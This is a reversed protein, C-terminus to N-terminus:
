IKKFSDPELCSDIDLMYLGFESLVPCAMSKDIRLRLRKASMNDVRLIRKYGITTGKILEQWNGDVMTDIAFKEVRQGLKIYEQLVIRNFVKKKGLDIEVAGQTVGDDTTWYNKTNGDLLNSPSFDKGRRTQKSSAKAGKTINIEYTKSIVKGLELARKADYEPILGQTDPAFNLLWVGGTGVLRDYLDILTELSHARGDDSPHYFWRTRTTM